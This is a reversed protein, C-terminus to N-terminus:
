EEYEALSKEGTELEPWSQRNLQFSVKFSLFINATNENILAGVGIPESSSVCPTRGPTM